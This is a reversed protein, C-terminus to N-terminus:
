LTVEIINTDKKFNKAIEYMHSVSKPLNVEDKSKKGDKYFLNAEELSLKVRLAVACEKLNQCTNVEDINEINMTECVVLLLEDKDLAKIAGAKLVKLSTEDGSSITLIEKTNNTLISAYSSATNYVSNQFDNASIGSNYLIANLINSSAKLEGFSSGYIVRGEKFGVKNILEIFLKSARTLRRRLMMKPVLEKTNLDKIEEKDYLFAAEIIELNIKM